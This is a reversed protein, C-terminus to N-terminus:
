FFFTGKGCEIVSTRKDVEIHYQSTKDFSKSVIYVNFNPDKRLLRLVTDISVTYNLSNKKKVQKPTYKLNGVRVFERLLQIM